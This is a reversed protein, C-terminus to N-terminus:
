GMREIREGEENLRYAHAALSSFKPISRRLFQLRGLFRRLEILSETKPRTRLVEVKKPSVKIRHKDITLGLFGMEEQFLACKKPSVYLEHEKLRPLATELHRLHSKEGKNFILVDDIYVCLFDDMCNHFIDTMLSQFTAPAKCAGMPMVSYESQCYKTNIAKKEIDSHRMRIQHFVTKLDLRSFVCVGGIRGFVEDTQPIPANNKKTIRNM